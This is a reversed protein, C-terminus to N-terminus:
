GFIESLGKHAKRYPLRGYRVYLAYQHIDWEQGWEDKPLHVVRLSFGKRNSHLGRLFRARETAQLKTQYRNWRGYFKYRKGDIMRTKLPLGM